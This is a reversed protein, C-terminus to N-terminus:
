IKLVKRLNPLVFAFVVYFGLILAPYKFYGMSDLFDSLYALSFGVSSIFGAILLGAGVLQMSPVFMLIMGVVILILGVALGVAM